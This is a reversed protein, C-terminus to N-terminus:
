MLLCVIRSAGPFQLGVLASQMPMSSVPVTAGTDVSMIDELLPSAVSLLDRHAQLAVHMGTDVVESRIIQFPQQYRWATLIVLVGLGKLLRVKVPGDDCVLAINGTQLLPLLEPDVISPSPSDATVEAHAEASEAM